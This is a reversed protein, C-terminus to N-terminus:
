SKMKCTSIGFISYIPCTGILGTVLPIIGILKAYHWLGAGQDYAFWILLALGVIVRIARDPTSENFM